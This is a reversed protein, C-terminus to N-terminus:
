TIVRGVPVTIRSVSAGKKGFWSVGDQVMDFELVYEGSLYPPKVMANVQVEQYPLVDCPLQTRLGNYIFIQDNKYWHYSLSIQYKGHESKCSWVVSSMNKVKVLINTIISTKVQIAPSEITLLARFAEDPLPSVAISASNVGNFRLGGADGAHEKILDKQRAAAAKIKQMTDDVDDNVSHKNKM